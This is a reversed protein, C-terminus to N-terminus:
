CWEFEKDFLKEFENAPLPKSFYYGQVIDYGLEKLVNIQELTEAGEAVLLVKLAKAIDAVFRVIVMTKESVLMKKVFQMDLKLVDFALGTLANLSSYGSGFDDVEIVFGAEKFENIIKMMEKEDTSYTSETIELYLDKTEIGANKCINVLTGCLNTEFMDYRSINVSIPLVYGNREKWRAVQYAAEQWVYKDLEAVSGNKEFLPIFVGPSIFGLEPHIWRVLAEASSMKYKDGQINVKAQYYVIFQKEEIAKKFDQELKEKFLTNKVEEPNYIKYSSNNIIRISDCMLKAKDLRYEISENKDNCRYVGIRFILNGLEYKEILDNEIEKVFEKYDEQEAIYIAFYDSQIRGVIGNYKRACSQLVRSFSILIENGKERGYLENFIHFKSVNLVCLDYKKDSTYLDIKRAYEDFIHKNYLGTLNDREAAQVITRDEALEITRAVRALVIEPYDYPKKIFDVAGLELSKLENDVEKTLVIVPIKKLQEDEKILKLFELGGMIPMNIDLMILSIPVLASKIIRFADVGNEAVMVDYNNSLINKLIEQNVFEDEVILITRKIQNIINVKEAM